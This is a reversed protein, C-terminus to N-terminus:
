QQLSNEAWLCGPRDERKKPAADAELAAEVILNQLGFALSKSPVIKLDNQHAYLVTSLANIMRREVLQGFNWADKRESPIEINLDLPM